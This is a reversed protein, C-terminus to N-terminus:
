SKLKFQVTLNFLVRVPKGDRMAPLFHWQRVADLTAERLQPIDKVVWAAAVNGREDIETQIIVIGSIHQRRADEPYEPELRKEVVPPKVAGKVVIPDALHTARDAVSVGVMEVRGGDPNGSVITTRNLPVTLDFDHAGGLVRLLVHAEGRAVSALSYRVNDFMREEGPQMPLTHVDRAIVSAGGNAKVLATMLADYELPWQGPLVRDPHSTEAGSQYPQAFREYEVVRVTYPQAFAAGAVLLALLAVRKM